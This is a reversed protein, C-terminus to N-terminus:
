LLDECMHGTCIRELCRSCIAVNWYYTKKFIWWGYTHSKYSHAYLEPPYTYPFCDKWRWRWYEIEGLEEYKDKFLIPGTKYM